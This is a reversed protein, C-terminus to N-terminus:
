RPPWLGGFLLELQADSEDHPELYRWGHQAHDHLTSALRQLARVIVRVASRDTVAEDDVIGDALVRCTWQQDSAREPRGIAIRGRERVGTPDVVIVHHEAAWSVDVAGPL